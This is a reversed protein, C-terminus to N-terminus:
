PPPVMVRIWLLAASCSRHRQRNSSGRLLCPDARGTDQGAWRAWSPGNIGLKMRLRNGITVVHAGLGRRGQRTRARCWCRRLSLGGVCPPWKGHLSAVGGREGGELVIVPQEPIQGIRQM